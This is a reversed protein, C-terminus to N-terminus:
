RTVIVEHPFGAARLDDSTYHRSNLVKDFVTM